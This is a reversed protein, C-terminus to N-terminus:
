HLIVDLIPPIAVTERDCPLHTLDVVEVPIANRTGIGSRGLAKLAKLL